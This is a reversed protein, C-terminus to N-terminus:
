SPTSTHRLAIQANGKVATLANKLDHKVVPLLGDRAVQRRALEEAQRPLESQEKSLAHIHLVLETTRAQYFQPYRTTGRRAM